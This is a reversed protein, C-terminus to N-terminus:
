RIAVPAPKSKQGNTELVLPVADGKPADQPILINVQGLGIFGPALGAFQVTAPVGGLTATLPALANSLVDLPAPNGTPIAPSVAGLGTVYATIVGNGAPVALFIAPAAPLVNFSTAATRGAPTVIVANAPGPVTDFPLQANIQGPSVLYLPVAAGNIELSVGALTTPLPVTSFSETAASFNAGFVSFIGGPAPPAFFSAGDVIGGPAIAPFAVKRIVFNQWDVIYLNDSADLAIACPTNLTGAAVTTINGSAADIRRIRHNGTDAIYVNGRSDLKIDMPTDFCASLAPGGDGCFSQTGTGAITTLTGNPTAKRIRHNGTDAILVNNDRDIAIGTPKTLTATGPFGNGAITALRGDANIRGIRNSHLESFYILGASDVALAAPWDM